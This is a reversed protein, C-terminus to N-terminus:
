RKLLNLLNMMVSAMIVMFLVKSLKSFSQILVSSLRCGFLSLWSSFRSYSRKIIEDTINMTAERQVHETYCVRVLLHDQFHTM